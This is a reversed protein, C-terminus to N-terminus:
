LMGLSVELPGPTGLQLSEPLAAPSPELCTLHAGALHAEPAHHHITPPHEATGPLAHDSHCAAAKSGAKSPCARCYTCENLLYLM